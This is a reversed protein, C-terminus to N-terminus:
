DEQANGIVLANNIAGVQEGFIRFGGFGGVLIVFSSFCM